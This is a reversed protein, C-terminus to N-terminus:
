YICPAALLSVNNGKTVKWVPSKLGYPLLFFYCYVYQIFYSVCPPDYLCLEDVTFIAM